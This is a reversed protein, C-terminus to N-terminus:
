THNKTLSETNYGAMDGYLPCGRGTVQFHISCSQPNKVRPVKVLIVPLVCAAILTYADSVMHITRTVYVDIPIQQTIMWVHVASEM